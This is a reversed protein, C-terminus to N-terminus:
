SAEYLAPHVRERIRQMHADDHQAIGRLFQYGNIIENGLRAGRGLVTAPDAGLAAVTKERERAFRDLLEPLPDDAGPPPDSPQWDAFLVPQASAADTASTASSALAEVRGQISSREFEILHALQSAPPWRGELPRSGASSPRDADEQAAARLAAPADALRVVLAEADHPTFDDPYLEYYPLREAEGFRALTPGLFGDCADLARETPGRGSGLRGMAIATKASGGARVLLARAEERPISCVASVIRISRDVLKLSVACLDVMLNTYVRGLRVM